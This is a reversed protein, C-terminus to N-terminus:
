DSKIRLQKHRLCYKTYVTTKCTEHVVHAVALHADVSLLLVRLMHLSCVLPLLREGEENCIKLGIRDAFKRQM